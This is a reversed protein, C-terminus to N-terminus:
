RAGEPVVHLTLGDVRTVRCRAGRTVFPRQRRQAGVVVAGRLEVSGIAGPALDETAVASRAWSRDVTPAQPDPQLMQLLRARFLVLSMISISPSCCCDADVGARGTRLRRPHRGVLAGVGFFIIYFGGPTAMEAVVLVLGLVLWHWWLIEM